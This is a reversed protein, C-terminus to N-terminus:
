EKADGNDDTPTDDTNNAVDKKDVDGEGDEDEEEDIDLEMDADDLAADLEEQINEEDAM